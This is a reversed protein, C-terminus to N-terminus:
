PTELMVKKKWLEVFPESSPALVSETFELRPNDKIEHFGISRIEFLDSTLYRSDTHIGMVQSGLSAAPITAHLRLSVMKFCGAYLRLLSDPDSVCMVGCGPSHKDMWWYDTADHVILSTPLEKALEDRLATLRSAVWEHEFVKKAIVINHTKSRSTVGRQDAAWWSSCPLLHVGAKREILSAALTDRAINLQCRSTFEVRRQNSGICQLRESMEPVPGMDPYPCTAGDFANVVIRGNDLFREVRSWFGLDCYQGLEDTNFKPNGCVVVVDAQRDALRWGAPDDHILDVESFIADHDAQQILNRIGETIFIWGPNCASGREM